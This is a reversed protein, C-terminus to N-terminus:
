CLNMKWVQFRNLIFWSFTKAQIKKYGTEGRPLPYGSNTWMNFWSQPCIKVSYSQSNCMTCLVHQSHKVEFSASCCSKGNVTHTQKQKYVPFLAFIIWIILNYQINLCVLNVHTFKHEWVSGWLNLFFFFFANERKNNMNEAYRLGITHKM